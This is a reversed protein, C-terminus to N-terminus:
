RSSFRLMTLSVNLSSRALLLCSLGVVGVEAVDEIELCGFTCQLHNRVLIDFNPIKVRSKSQRNTREPPADPLRHDFELTASGISISDLWDYYKNVIDYVM